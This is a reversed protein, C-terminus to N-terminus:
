APAGTAARAGAGVPAGSRMSFPPDASLHRIDPMVDSAFLRMNREGEDFPMGAYRCVALYGEAGTMRQIEAIKDICQAPTGYVQLDAFFNIHGQAGHKEISKGVGAYHESGKTTALHGATFEYHKLVTEYYAGLYRRGLEQARDADEDVFTWGGLIPAPAETGNLERYLERYGALEEVVTDWPKQPIILLGVGLKAMIPWSEPSVSSAYLRGKFSKFPSPRLQRSPQSIFEGEYKLEGTELGEILMEAYETFRGRSEGMPVRFGDFEVRGLGRGLGLVLRGQSMTDVMVAQEAVRVPDHWPLVVVMTGLQVRSTRGAMYSLFTLPDPCMTYGTFHHEVSWVSDFGLPEALEALRLDNSWVDQDGSPDDSGQFVASYGVHM